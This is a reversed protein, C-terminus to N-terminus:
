VLWCVLLSLLAMLLLLVFLRRGSFKYRAIYYRQANGCSVIKGIVRGDQKLILKQM